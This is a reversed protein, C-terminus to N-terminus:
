DVGGSPGRRDLLRSCMTAGTSKKGPRMQVALARLAGLRCATRTVCPLGSRALRERCSRRDSSHAHDTMVRGDRGCETEPDIREASTSPAGGANGDM